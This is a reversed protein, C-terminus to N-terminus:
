QFPPMLYSTLTNHAEGTARYYFSDAQLASRPKVEPDPLAGPPPFLFWSWYEGNQLIRHLSSGKLSCDMPNCLTLCLQLSQARM